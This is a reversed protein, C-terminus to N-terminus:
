RVKIFNNINLNGVITFAWNDTPDAYHYAAHSPCIQYALAVGFDVLGWSLIGDVGLAPEILGKNPSQLLLGDHVMQGYEDQGFMSGWLANVQAFPKPASFSLTWLPKPMTYNLCVHAYTNAAFTNPRVTLLSNSFFFGSYATGSLDFMRSYPAGKTAIGVQSFLKLSNNLYTTKYQLIARLYGNTSYGGIYGSRLMCTLSTKWKITAVFESFSIVEAQDNPNIAPFLLRRGDFRYDEWTQRFGLTLTTTRSPKFEASAMGGKVGVFYSAVFGTNASPNLLSYTGLNRDAARIIDSFASVSFSAKPRKLTSSIGYKFDEDGTTYAWYGKARFQNKSSKALKSNENPYVWTANLKYRWHEYMNYNVANEADLYLASPADIKTLRIGQAGAHLTPALLALILWKKLM